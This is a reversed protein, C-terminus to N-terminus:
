IMVQSLWKPKPQPTPLPCFNEHEEACLLVAGEDGTMQLVAGQVYTYGVSSVWCDRAQEPSRWALTESAVRFLKWKYSRDWKRRAHRRECRPLGSVQLMRRNAWMVQQPISSPPHAHPRPTPNTHTHTFREKKSKACLIYAVGHASRRKCRCVLM